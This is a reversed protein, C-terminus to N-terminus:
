DHPCTLREFLIRDYLQNRSRTTPDPDACCAISIAPDSAEFGGM